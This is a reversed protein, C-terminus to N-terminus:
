LWYRKYALLQSFSIIYKHIFYKSEAIERRTTIVECKAKKYTVASTDSVVFSGTKAM